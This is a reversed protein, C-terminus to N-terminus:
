RKSRKRWPFALLSWARASSPSLGSKRFSRATVYRATMRPLNM